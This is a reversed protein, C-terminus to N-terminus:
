IEPVLTVKIFVKRGADDIFYANNFNGHTLARLRNILDCYSGTHNLDIERLADFDKKHNLNGATEPPKAQYDGSLLLQFHKLVLRRELAMIKEYASGSTDWSEIEYEQQCIIAGDDLQENIEHITVGTPLGNIISFVQPFWGRNHPNLGPHVNICRVQNVMEPPFLQKCHISIVLQYRAVIDSVSKKVSLKPLDPLGGNPSQYIEIDGYSDKLERALEAAFPNDTLILTLM